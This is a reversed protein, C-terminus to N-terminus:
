RAGVTRVPTRDADVHYPVEFVVRFGDVTGGAEFRQEEGYLQRLRARSNALGVGERRGSPDPEGVGDDD